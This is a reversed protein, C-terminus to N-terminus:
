QKKLAELQAGIEKSPIIAFAEQYKKMAAEIKDNDALMKAEDRLVLFKAVDGNVKKQIGALSAASKPGILGAQRVLPDLISKADFLERAKIQKELVPLNDGFAAMADALQLPVPIVAPPSGARFQKVSDSMQRLGSALEPSLSLSVSAASVNSLSAEFQVQVAKIQATLEAAKGTAADWSRVFLNAASDEQPLLTKLKKVLGSAQDHTIGGANLQRLLDTREEKRVLSDYLSQVGALIPRVTPESATLEKRGVFCHNTALDFDKIKPASILEPKLLEALAAAKNQYYVGRSVWQGNEKISGADYKAADSKLTALSQNLIRAAAPFKKATAAFEDLTKQLAARQEGSAISIPSEPFLILAVVKAAPVQCAPLRATRFQYYGTHNSVAQFELVTTQDDKSWSQPKVM